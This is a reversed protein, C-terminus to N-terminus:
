DNISWIEINEGAEVHTVGIPVHVLVTSAAYSHLLHSSAGGVLRVSGDPALLGRRIQHKGGPSEVAEALPATIRRRLTPRGTALEALLPRLFMEFSILASVPNGPFSIVPLPEARGDLTIEGLGQPGGPQMGVHLFEVGLPELADRVVERAGASVGGITIVLDTSAAGSNLIQLLDAANDSHCPWVVATCGIETLAAAIMISNSDYIQGSVLEAGPERIEHGTAIVLVRPRRRVVAHTLGVGAIVGFQAPGLTSGAPLLTAGTAVDSGSTRLYSGAVAPAAFSVTLADAVERVSVRHFSAPLCAEIPIVADAGAPIPAGTMIPAAWGAPLARERDGANIPPTVPRTVPHAPTAESLEASRVAYGDMQSNTFPPLDMPSVIDQALIRDRYGAPDAILRAASVTLREVGLRAALPALLANVAEQHTEILRTSVGDNKGVGERSAERLPAAAQDPNSQIRM